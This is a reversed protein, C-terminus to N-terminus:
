DVVEGDAGGAKIDAIIADASARGYAAYGILSFSVKLM